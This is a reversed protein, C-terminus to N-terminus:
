DFESSPAYDFNWDETAFGVDLPEAVWGLNTSDGGGLPPDPKACWDPEVSGATSGIVGTSVRTSVPSAGTYTEVLMRNFVDEVLDTVGDSRTDGQPSFVPQHVNDVKMVDVYWSVKREVGYPLGRSSVHSSQHELEATYYIYPYNVVANSSSINRPRFFDIEDWDDEADSKAEEWGPPVDRSTAKIVAIGRYAETDDGDVFFVGKGTRTTIKFVAQLDVFLWPGIIDGIQMKGYSYADDDYDEWDAPLDGGSPIRRWRGAETLEAETFMEAKTMSGPYSASSVDNYDDRTPDMWKGGWHDEISDQMDYIEDKYYQVADGIVVTNVPTSYSALVAKREFYAATYENLFDVNAWETGNEVTTFAM